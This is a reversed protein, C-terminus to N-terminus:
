HGHSHDLRDFRHPGIVPGGHALPWQDEAPVLLGCAGNTDPRLQGLWDNAPKLCGVQSGKAPEGGRPM